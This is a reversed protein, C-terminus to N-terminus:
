LVYGMAKAIEAHALGFNENRWNDLRQMYEKFKQGDSGVSNKVRNGINQLEVINSNQFKTFVLKKAAPTM